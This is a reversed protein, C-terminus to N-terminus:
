IYGDAKMKERVSDNIYKSRNITPPLLMVLETDMKLSILTTPKGIPPRGAGARKGGRNEKKNSIKNM